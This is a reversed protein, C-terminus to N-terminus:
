WRIVLCHTAVIDNPAKAKVVYGDEVLQRMVWELTAQTVRINVVLHNCKQQAADRIRPYLRSLIEVGRENLKMMERAQEATIRKLSEM